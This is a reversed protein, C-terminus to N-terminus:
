PMVRLQVFRDLVAIQLCSSGVLELDATANKVIGALRAENSNTKQITAKSEEKLTEYLHYLDHTPEIAFGEREIKYKLLLEACQASIIIAAAM